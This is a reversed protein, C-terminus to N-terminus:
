CLWCPVLELPGLAFVLGFALLLRLLGLATFVSSSFWTLPVCVFGPTFGLGLIVLFCLGFGFLPDHDGQSSYKCM